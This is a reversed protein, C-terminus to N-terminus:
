TQRAQSTMMEEALKEVDEIRLKRQCMPGVPYEKFPERKEYSRQSNTQVRQGPITKVKEELDAIQENMTKAGEFLPGWAEVWQKASELETIIRQEWNRQDGVVDKEEGVM